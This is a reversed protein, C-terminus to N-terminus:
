ALTGHLDLTLAVHKRIAQGRLAAVLLLWIHLLNFFQCCVLQEQDLFQLM